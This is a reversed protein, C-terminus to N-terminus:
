RAMAVVKSEEKIEGTEADFAIQGKVGPGYEEAYIVGDRYDKGITMKTSIPKAAALKPVVSVNVTTDNREENQELSIEICIKRKNKWSTNPDLMNQLVKDFADDFKEQLAGGAFEKLNVKEM